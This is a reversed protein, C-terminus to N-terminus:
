RHIASVSSASSSGYPTTVSGDSLANEGNGANYIRLAAALNRYGTMSGDSVYVVQDTKLNGEDPRTLRRAGARVSTVRSPFCHRRVSGGRAAPLERSLPTERRGAHGRTRHRETRRVREEPRGNLDPLPSEDQSCM